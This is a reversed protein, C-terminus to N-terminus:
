EKKVFYNTQIQSAYEKIEMITITPAIEQITMNLKKAIENIHIPKNSLLEYIPLYEKEINKEKKRDIIQNINEDKKNIKGLNIKNRNRIRKRGKSQNNKKYAEELDKNNYIKEISECRDNLNNNINQKKIEEVIEYPDIVLKAGEQIMINTGIGASNFINSPIAYITKGEKKAYKVTISSGSRYQAEVVLISDSLGSVIRNRKPFKKTDPEVDPPYESIICGGKELIKHFLWENEKPYIYNFGCGLVAITNGVEEIAGNHAQGDIGVAMGSIICIGNESIEKSFEFAVKRGYESCKRSGVIGVTYKSKLLEINGIAYLKSPFNKIKLLKKPYKEDKYDIEIIKM